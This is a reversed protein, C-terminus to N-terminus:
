RGLNKAVLSTFATNGAGSFDHTLFNFSDHVGFGSMNSSPNYPKATAFAWGFLNSGQPDLTTTRGISNTYYACGSCKATVQWHSGNVRTGTKLVQYSAGSYASPM